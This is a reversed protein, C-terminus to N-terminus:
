SEGYGEPGYKRMFQGWAKYRAEYADGARGDWVFRPRDPAVIEVTYDHRNLGGRLVGAAKMPAIDPFHLRVDAHMQALLHRTFTTDISQM